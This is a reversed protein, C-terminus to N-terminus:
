ATIIRKRYERPSIGHFDKFVRNFTRQSSFGSELAITTVPIQFNGLLHQAYGIRLGNLYENFSSQIENSFIRSITYKGVGLESSMTDLSIPERYNRTVYNLIADVLNPEEKKERKKLRLEKLLNGLLVTIYGKVLSQNEGIDDRALASLCVNVDPHVNEKELFSTLCKYKTLFEIYDGAMDLDFILLIHSCYEKTAYSHIINPFVIGLGGPSITKKEDGIQVDIEGDFVYIMEVQKHLHERFTMNNGYFARTPQRIIEYFANM